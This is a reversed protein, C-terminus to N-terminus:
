ARKTRESHRPSSGSALGPSTSVIACCRIARCLVLHAFIDLGKNVAALAGTADGVFLLARTMLNGHSLMVGKARGTTGSTYFIGALDDRGAMTDPIPSSAALWSKYGAVDAHPKGEGAYVLALAPIAAALAKGAEKFADDVVLLRAGCDQLADRNEAVSWRINLPVIM